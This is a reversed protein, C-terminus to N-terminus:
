LVEVNKRCATKTAPTEGATYPAVGYGKAIRRFFASKEKGLSPFFYKERGALFISEEGRLSRETKTFFYERRKIFFISGEFSSLMRDLLVFLFDSQPSIFFLLLKRIYIIRRVM